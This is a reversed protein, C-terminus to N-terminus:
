LQHEISLVNAYYSPIGDDPSEHTIRQTSTINYKLIPPLQVSKIQKELWEKQHTLSPFVLYCSHIATKGKYFEFFSIFRLLEKKVETSTPDIGKLEIIYNNAGSEVFIDVKGQKNKPKQSEKFYQNFGVQKLLSGSAIKNVPEELKILIDLCDCDDIGKSLEDAVSITLLYEPKIKLLNKTYSWQRLVGADIGNLLRKNLLM